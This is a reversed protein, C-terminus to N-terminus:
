SRWRVTDAPFERVRRRDDRLGCRVDHPVSSASARERSWPKCAAVRTRLNRPPGCDLRRPHDPGRLGPLLIGDRQTAHVANDLRFGSAALLKRNRMAPPVLELLM